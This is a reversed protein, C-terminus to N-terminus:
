GRVGLGEKNGVLRRQERGYEAQERRRAADIAQCDRRLVGVVDGDLGGGDALEDLVALAQGAAMGKRYPRDEGVATFVDAVAMIRSGLALEGGGRRFPYGGGDPREHHFAAWACVEGLGGVGDLIRWTHYPHGRVVATEAPTLPRPKDLVEAPVSLKGLDHLWGALRLRGREAPSLGMREALGGATATVGASHLVTWRSSLDVIRGCVEAIAGLAAEDLQPGPWDVLGALVRDSAPSVADLWFAEARAEERFAEVAQPHFRGGSMASVRESIHEAQELVALERDIMREVADALALVHTALPVPQGACSEGRGHDWHLHHHRLIEAAPRLLANGKLLEFGVQGHRQGSDSQGLRGRVRNAAGILGIDHLAAACFLDTPAQRDPGGLGMRGAVRCAIGAVRQQHGAIDPHVNDLAESLALVMRHLPVPPGAIM